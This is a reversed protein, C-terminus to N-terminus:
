SEIKRMVLLKLRCSAVMMVKYFQSLTSSNGFTLMYQNM